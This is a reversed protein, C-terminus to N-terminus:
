HLSTMTTVYLHVHITPHKHAPTHAAAGGGPLGRLLGPPRRVEPHAGGGQQQPQRKHGHLRTECLQLLEQFAFACFWILDFITPMLIKLFFQLLATQGLSAHRAAFTPPSAHYNSDTEERLEGQAREVGRRERDVEWEGEQRLVGPRVGQRLLGLLPLLHAGSHPVGLLSSRPLIRLQLLPIVLFESLNSLQDM